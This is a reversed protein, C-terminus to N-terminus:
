KLNFMTAQSEQWTEYIDEESYKLSDSGSFLQVPHINRWMYLMGDIMKIEDELDTRNLRILEYSNAAPCYFFLYSYEMEDFVKFAMALQLREDEYKGTAITKGHKWPEYSKIEVVFEPQVIFKEADKKNPDAHAEVPLVLRSTADPSFGYDDRYFLVDDMHVVDEKLIWHLEKVAYPEMIHGRAASGFVKIENVQDSQKEMSLAVFEPVDDGPKWGAKMARKYAPRLKVADTATFFQKRALLWGPSVEHYWGAAM